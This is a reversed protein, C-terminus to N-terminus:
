YACVIAFIDRLRNPIYAFVALCALALWSPLNKLTLLEKYSSKDFAQGKKSNTLAM